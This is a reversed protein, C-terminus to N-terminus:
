EINQIQERIKEAESKADVVIRAIEASNCKSGTTNIERNVEQLLFDLKRGCPADGNTRFMDRLQKIHSNLRVLEEDVAVRDAFIAVEEIIRTQDLNADGLLESIKETLRTRYDEVVTPVLKEVQGVYGEIVDIKSLIDKTLREGESKKMKMFDEFAAVLSPELREWLEDTSDDAKVSTFIDRNQAVSMVSIDDKLGYKDKLENLCGLYNLLYTEDIALSTDAGPVAEVSIYIDIKGRTAYKGALTKVKEEVRSYARPMKCNLDLFRSNVSKIETTVIVKEGQIRAYGCGTMSLIEVMESFINIFVANLWVILRNYIIYGIGKKTLIQSTTKKQKLYSIEGASAPSIVFNM